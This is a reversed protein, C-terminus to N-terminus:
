IEKVHEFPESCSLCRHLSRCATAGFAATRATDSSGCRPCNAPRDVSLAIPVPGTVARPAPEPPSIGAELLKRRGEATIWDTSWAPALEIRVEVNTFGARGLRQLVDARMEHLAPCGLYTPTLAVRVTGASEDVQRVIGLDVLTLMPLEPDPVESVIRRVRALDVGGDVGVGVGVDTASSTVV